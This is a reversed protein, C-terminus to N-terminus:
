YSSTRRRRWIRAQEAASATSPSSTVAVASAEPVPVEAPSWCYTSGSVVVVAVVVAGGAEVVGAGLELLALEADLEEGLVPALVVEGAGVVVLAVVAPSEGDLAVSGNVPSFTSAHTATPM